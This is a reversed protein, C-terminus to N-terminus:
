GVSRAHCEIGGTTQPDGIIITLASQQKFRALRPEFDGFMLASGENDNSASLPDFRM